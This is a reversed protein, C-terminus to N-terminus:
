CKDIQIGTMRFEMVGGKTYIPMRCLHKGPAKSAAPLKLMTPAKFDRGVGANPFSGM